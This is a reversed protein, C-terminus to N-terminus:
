VLDIQLDLLELVLDISQLLIALVRILNNELSLGILDFGRDRFNQRAVCSLLKPLYRDLSHTQGVNQEVGLHAGPEIQVVLLDFLNLLDRLLAASFNNKEVLSVRVDRM